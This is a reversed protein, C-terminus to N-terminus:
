GHDEESGGIGLAHEIHEVRERLQENEYRVEAMDIREDVILKGIAISCQDNVILLAVDKLAIYEELLRRYALRDTGLFNFLDDGAAHYSAIDRIRGNESVIQPIIKRATADVGYVDVMAQEWAKPRDEEPIDNMMREVNARLGDLYGHKKGRAAYYKPNNRGEWARNKLETLDAEAAIEGGLAERLHEWFLREKRDIYTWVSEGDSMAADQADNM